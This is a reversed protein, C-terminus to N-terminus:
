KVQTTVVRSWAGYVKLGASDIRYARVRVKYTGKKINVFYMATVPESKEKTAKHVTTWTKGDASYAFEYGNVFTAPKNATVTFRGKSYSKSAFTWVKGTFVRTWHAYLTTVSGNCIMESKIREGGEPLTYWGSFFYGPRYIISPDFDFGFKKGYETLVSEGTYTGGNADFNIMYFESPEIPTREEVPYVELPVSAYDTEYIGNVDEAIIYIHNGSRLINEVDDYLTLSGTGSVGTGGNASLKGYQIISATSDTYDKDTVLVSIRNVNQASDGTILYPVTIVNRKYTVEAGNKVGINIDSDLLTLKYESYTEGEAGFILSSFLISSIDINLAPSVGAYSVGLSSSANDPDSLLAGM